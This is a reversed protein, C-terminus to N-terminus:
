LAGSNFLMIFQVSTLQIGCLRGHLGVYRNSEAYNNKNYYIATDRYTILGWNEMAGSRFDPIAVMDMKRLPFKVNFIQEFHRLIRPGIKAAYALDTLRDKPGWLRFNQHGRVHTSGFESVIFALLYPSMTVSPEYVDLVYDDHLKHTSKVLTNSLTTM